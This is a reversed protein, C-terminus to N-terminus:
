LVSCTLYVSVIGCGLSCAAHAGAINLWWLCPGQNGSRGLPSPMADSLVPFSFSQRERWAEKSEVNWCGYGDGGGLRPQLGGGGVGGGGATQSRPASQLAPKENEEIRRNDSSTGSRGASRPALCRRVGAGIDARRHRCRGPGGGERLARGVMRERSASSPRCLLFRRNKLGLRAPARHGM